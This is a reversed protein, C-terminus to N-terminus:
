GTAEFHEGIRADMFRRDANFHAPLATATNAAPMVTSISGVLARGDIPMASDEAVSVTAELQGTTSM